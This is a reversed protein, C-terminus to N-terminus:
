NPRDQLCGGDTLAAARDAGPDTDFRIALRENRPVHRKPGV